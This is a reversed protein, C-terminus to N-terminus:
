SAGRLLRGIANLKDEYYEPAGTQDKYYNYAAQMAERGQTIVARDGELAGLNALSWGLGEQADAYDSPSSDQTYVDLSARFAEVSRRWDAASKRRDGLDALVLGLNYQTLAWNRPDNDRTRATLCLDYAEVARLLSDFGKEKRGIAAYTAGLNNQVAAWQLPQRERSWVSLAEGYAAIGARDNADADAFGALDTLANGLNNQATAYDYPAAQRTWQRLAARYAAVSQSLEDADKGYLALSHLATGLNSQARAWDLPAGDETWVSLADNYAAIAQQWKQPDQARDGLSALVNGLNNRVRAWDAPRRDKTWIGAVQEFAHQADELYETSQQRDGYISLAYGFENYADAWADDDPQGDLWTMVEDYLHLADDLRATDGGFEGLSTLAEAQQKKYASGLGEDIGAVERGAAAYRDAAQRYDLALFAADGAKALIAALAKHQAAPDAGLSDLAAQARDVARNWFGLAAPLAGEEDAQGALAVLDALGPDSVPVPAEAELRRIREAGQQLQTELAAPDSTDVGLAELMAYVKDLPAGTNAAVTEVTTRAADPASAISLLLDRRGRSIAASDPDESQAPTGLSLIRRLSSNVWPHQRGGTKLYVEESVLTMLDSFSYGGAGLHKLLAAAYPSNADGPAGDLAPQGPSAAFGIVMGLNDAPEAPRGVPTPGRLEGLGAPAAAVPEAAGPPEIMTGPPFAGSRCADLLVITVPTTRALTDLLRSVPLLTEGALKPTSLDADTPVLYDEGGAEIGHGSYYVLAVDASKARVEFSALDGALTTRTEDFATTVDFGLAGLLAGMAAADEHPNHLPPLSGRYDSQGIVLAM